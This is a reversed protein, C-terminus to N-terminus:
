AAKPEEVKEKKKENAKKRKQTERHYNKEDNEYRKLATDNEKSVYMDYTMATSDDSNLNRHIWVIVEGDSSEIAFNSPGYYKREDLVFKMDKLLGSLDESKKLSDLVSDIRRVSTVFGKLKEEPLTVIEKNKFEYQPREEGEPETYKAAKKDKTNDVKSKEEKSAKAESKKAIKELREEEYDRVLHMFKNLLTESIGIQYYLEYIDSVKYDLAIITAFKKILSDNDKGYCQHHAMFVATENEQNVSFIEFLKDRDIEDGILEPTKVTEGFYQDLNRNTEDTWWSLKIGKPYKKIGLIGFYKPIAEESAPMVMKRNKYMMMTIVSRKFKTSLRYIRKLDKVM